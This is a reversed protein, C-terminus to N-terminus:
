RKGDKEVKAFADFTKRWRTLESDSPKAKDKLTQTFAQIIGSPTSSSTAASGAPSIDAVPNASM